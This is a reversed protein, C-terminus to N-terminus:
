PLEFVPTATARDSITNDGLQGFANDGWCRLTGDGLLACSHLGGAGLFSVGGLGTVVTASTKYADTTTGDGIQGDSARGWCKAGGTATRVCTHQRGARIGTAEGADLGSVSTALGRATITGDGVQGEANAGWCQVTGNALLACSHREGAAIAKADIVGLVAIPTARYAGGDNDGLQGNLNWGWCWPIGGDNVVLACAHHSGVALATANALGSVAVPTSQDATTGDGLQGYTNAGWCRVTGDSKRACSFGAGAGVDTLLALGGGVNTPSRREINTGDGLGGDRNDGWCIAFGGDLTIACTHQNGAAIDVVNTLGAVDVATLSSLATGNGLQGADNDGWCRVTGNSILACTHGAGAAVQIAAETSAFWYRADPTAVTGGALDDGWWLLNGTSTVAFSQLGTNVVGKVTSLTTAAVPAYRDITTTDGVQRSANWGWCSLRGDAGVACAHGNPASLESVGSIGYVSAPTAWQNLAGADLGLMGYNNDGWCRGAGTTTTVCNASSGAAIRKAAGGLNVVDVPTASKSSAGGGDRGLEGSSDNGWCRVNGNSLRACTHVTGASIEVASSLGLVDAAAIATATAGGDRGIQGHSDSGWCRAGGNSLLACAHWAGASIGIANSVGVVPAPIATSGVCGADRGLQCFNNYGWCQVTGDVLLACGFENGVSVQTAALPVVPAGGGSQGYSNDGSCRVAGNALVVCRFYYFSASVGTVVGPGGPRSSVEVVNTERNGALDRARVVFYYRQGYALGGDVAFSTLSPAGADISWTTTFSSVCANRTTSQCIDYALLASSALNDAGADWSIAVTGGDTLAAAVAASAGAFIPPTSDETYTKGLAMCSQANGRPDIATAYFTTVTDGPVTTAIAFQGGGDAGGDGIEIACSVDSFIRVASNPEVLGSVVPSNNNAPGAPTVSADSTQPMVVSDEIYTVSTTSCPSTNGADDTVTAYFDTMSNDAVGADLGGAAFAAATGAGVPTGGCGGAYLRVWGLPEASGTILPQNNNAPGAPNAGFLVAADPAVNDHVYEVGPSCASVNGADDAVDVFFTNTTNAGVILSIGSSGFIAASGSAVIGGDCGAASYVRVGANSDAVGLLRVTVLNSPSTPQTSLLVAADPRASDEIYPITGNLAACSGVNGARDVIVGYFVTASDDGVNVIISFLGGDNVSGETPGGTCTSDGAFIRITTNGEAVGTVIPSNNNAPGQPVVGTGVPAAPLTSDEVFTVSSSCGSVNGALDVANASVVVTENEGVPVVIGADTFAEVSGSALSGGDCLSVGFVRVTTGPDATGRLKPANNNAPSAPSFALAGPTSPIQSDHAYSLPGVCSSANAATDTAQAYLTTTQNLPVTVEIGAGAFFSGTGQGLPTSSCDDNTHIKVSWTSDATGKVKPTASNSPSAPDTGSIAFATTGGGACSYALRCAMAVTATKSAAAVFRLTTGDDFKEVTATEKKGGQLNVVVGLSLAVSEAWSGSFVFTYAGSSFPNESFTVCFEKRGDGDCDKVEFTYAHGKTSKEQAAQDTLSLGADGPADLYLVLGTIATTDFSASLNITVVIRGEGGTTTSCAFAALGVAAFLRWM